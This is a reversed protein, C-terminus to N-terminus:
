QPPGVSDPGVVPPIPTCYRCGPLDDSASRKGCERCPWVPSTVRARVRMVLRAVKWRLSWRPCDTRSKTPWESVWEGCSRCEWALVEADIAEMPFLHPKMRCEPYHQGRDSEANHTM